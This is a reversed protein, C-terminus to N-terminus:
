NFCPQKPFNGHRCHENTAKTKMVEKEREPDCPPSWVEATSRLHGPVGAQLLSVEWTTDASTKLM